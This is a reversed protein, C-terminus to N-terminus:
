VAASICEAENMKKIHSHQSDGQQFILRRRVIGIYFSQSLISAASFPM